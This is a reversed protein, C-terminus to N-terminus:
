RKRPDRTRLVSALPDRSVRLLPRGTELRSRFRASERGKTAFISFARALSLGVLRRERHLNRVAILRWSTAFTLIICPRIELPDRISEIIRMKEM